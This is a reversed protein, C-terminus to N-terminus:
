GQDVANPDWLVEDVGQVWDAWRAWVFLADGLRNLYALAQSELGEDRALGVCLREVRRCVTRCHHLEASLRCGGALVFSTLEGLSANYQDIESELRAVEAGRIRPQGEATRAASTALEAGLNFLEHQIRLLVAALEGLREHKALSEHASLRALGVLAGLEDTAGYAEIRLHDKALREGSALSTQGADGGRTYVRDIRVKPGTFSGKETM